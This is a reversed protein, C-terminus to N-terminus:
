PFTELFLVKAKLKKETPIVLHSLILHTDDM